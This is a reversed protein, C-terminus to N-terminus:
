RPRSNPYEVPRLISMRTSSPWGPDKNLSSWSYLTMTVPWAKTIIKKITTGMKIPPNPFQNSGRINPIEPIIRGRSLLRLKQNKNGASRSNILPEKTSDPAPPTQTAWRGRLDFIVWKPKDTSKTTKERSRAPTEDRKPATFKILVKPFKRLNPIWHFRTGKKRENIKILVIKSRRERSRRASPTSIIIPRWEKNISLFKKSTTQLIAPSLLLGFLMSPNSPMFPSSWRGPRLGTSFPQSHYQYPGEPRSFRWSNKQLWARCSTMYKSILHVDL